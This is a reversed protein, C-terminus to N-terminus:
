ADYLLGDLSISRMKFYLPNVFYLEPHFQKPDLQEFGHTWMYKQIRWTTNEDRNNRVTIVGFEMNRFDISELVRDESGDMNLSLYDVTRVIGAGVQRLSKLLLNLPFTRLEGRQGYLLERGEYALEEGEKWGALGAGRMRYCARADDGTRGADDPGAPAAALAPDEILLCNWKRTVEFFLSNGFRLGSRISPSPGVEVVWHQNSSMHKLLNDIVRDQGNESYFSNNLIQFGHTKQASTGRNSLLGPGPRWMRASIDMITLNERRKRSAETRSVDALARQEAQVNGNRVGASDMPLSPGPAHATPGGAPLPEAAAAAVATAAPTQTENVELPNAKAEATLNEDDDRWVSPEYPVRLVKGSLYKPDKMSFDWGFDPQMKPVGRIDKILKRSAFYQPNAYYVDGHWRMRWLRLFNRALMMQDLAAITQKNGADRVTVIGIEIKATDIFQWIKDETGETDLALYDVTRKGIKQLIAALPYTMVRITEDPGLETEERPDVSRNLLGRPRGGYFEARGFNKWGGHADEALGANLSYCGRNEAVLKKYVAPNPEILLCSWNRKAELWLSNSHYQGDLAGAEVVFGFNTPHGKQDTLLKDVNKDQGTEAFNKERYKPDTRVKYTLSQADCGSCAPSKQRNPFHLYKELLQEIEQRSVLHNTTDAATSSNSGPTANGTKDAAGNSNSGLTENGSRLSRAAAADHRLHAIACSFLVLLPTALIM